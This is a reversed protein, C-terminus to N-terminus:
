AATMERDARELSRYTSEFTECVDEPIAYDNTVRRLEGFLERTRVPDDNEQLSETIERVRTLEPHNEGHVREILATYEAASELHQNTM